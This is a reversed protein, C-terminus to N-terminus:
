VDRYMMRQHDDQASEVDSCPSQVVLSTSSESSRRLSGGNFKRRIFECNNTADRNNASNSVPESSYMQDLKDEETALLEELAQLLADTKPRDAPEWSLCRKVLAAYGNPAGGFNEPFQPPRGSLIEEEVEYMFTLWYYPIQRYGIEWLVMGLSYIDVATSYQILRLTHEPYGKKEMIRGLLIEPATWRLTGCELSQESSAESKSSNSHNLYQSSSSSLRHHTNTSQQQGAGGDAAKNLVRAVRLTGFDALKSTYAEDVLINASKIDRHILPPSASHLYLLGRTAGVALRLRCVWSLDSPSQGYDHLLDYLSGRECYQSVIFSNNPELCCGMFIVINPHRLSVMRQAENQVEERIDKSAEELEPCSIRKIAVKMGRYAGLYVIGGGGQGIQRFIRVDASAVIASQPITSQSKQLKLNLLAQKKRQYRGFLIVFITLFFSMPIFTSLLIIVEIGSKSQSDGAMERSTSARGERNARRTGLNFKAQSQLDISSSSYQQITYSLHLPEDSEYEVYQQNSNSIFKLDHDHQHDKSYVISSADVDPVYVLRHQPDSIPVMERYMVDRFGTILVADLESPRNRGHKHLTIRIRDVPVETPLIKDVQFTRYVYASFGSNTIDRWLVQWEGRAVLGEILFVGGPRFNEFITIQTIFLPEIIQAEISNYEYAYAYPRDTCLGWALMSSGYTSIDPPGLLGFTTANTQDSVKTVADDCTKLVRHLYLNRQHHLENTRAKAGFFTSLSAGRLAEGTEPHVGLYQYLTGKSPISSILVKLPAQADYHIYDNAIESVNFQIVLDKTVVQSSQPQQVVPILVPCSDMHIHQVLPGNDERFLSQIDRSACLVCTSSNVAVQNRPCRHCERQGMLAQYQMEPCPTCSTSFSVDPSFTGAPCPTCMQSSNSVFHGAPCLISIEVQSEPSYDTDDFAVFSFTDIDQGAVSPNLPEYYIKSEGRPLHPYSANLHHKERRPRGNADINQFLLQGYKPFSVIKRILKHLNDEYTTSANLYILTPLHGYPAVVQVDNTGEIPALSPVLKPWKDNAYRVSTDYKFMESPTYYCPHGGFVYNDDDIGKAKSRISPNCVRNGCPSEYPPGEAAGSICHYNQKGYLGCTCYSSSNSSSRTQIDEYDQNLPQFGMFTPTCPACGGFKLDFGNPSLDSIIGGVKPEDFDYYAMLNPSNTPVKRNMNDRIEQESRIGKWIRIEDLFGKHYVNGYFTSTCISLGQILEVHDIISEVAREGPQGVAEHNHWRKEVMEGNIYLKASTGNAQDHTLAYHTWKNLETKQSTSAIRSSGVVAELGSDQSTSSIYLPGSKRFPNQADVWDRAIQGNGINIIAGEGEHYSESM